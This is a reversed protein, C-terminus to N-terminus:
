NASMPRITLPIMAATNKVSIRRVPLVMACATRSRSGSSAINFVMPNLLRLTSPSTSASATSSTSIPPMTPMSSAITTTRPTLVASPEVRGIASTPADIQPVAIMSIITIPSTTPTSGASCPM